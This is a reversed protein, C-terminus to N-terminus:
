SLGLLIKWLPIPKKLKSPDISKARMQSVHENAIQIALSPRVGERIWPTALAEVEEDWKKIENTYESM